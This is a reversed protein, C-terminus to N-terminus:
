SDYHINPLFPFQKIIYKSNQYKQLPLINNDKRAQILYYIWRRVKM